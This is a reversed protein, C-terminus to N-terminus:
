VILFSGSTWDTFISLEIHEEMLLSSLFAVASDAYLLMLVDMVEHWVLQFNLIDVIHYEQM